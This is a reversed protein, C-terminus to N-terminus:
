NEWIANLKCFVRYRTLCHKNVKDTALNMLLAGSNAAAKDDNDNSKYESVEKDDKDDDLEEVLSTLRSWYNCNQTQSKALNNKSANSITM